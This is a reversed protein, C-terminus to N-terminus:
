NTIDDNPIGSGSLYLLKITGKTVTLRHVHSLAVAKPFKEGTGLSQWDWVVSM